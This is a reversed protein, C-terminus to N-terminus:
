IDPVRATVWHPNVPPTGIVAKFFFAFIFSCLAMLDREGLVEGKGVGVGLAHAEGRGARPAVPM